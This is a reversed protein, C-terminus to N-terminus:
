AIARPGLVFSSTQGRFRARATLPTRADVGAAAILASPILLKGERNKELVGAPLGTVIASAPEIGDAVGEFRLRSMGEPLHVTRTESVLAFGELAGFDISGSGRYPARYVTVSLDSPPEALTDAAMVPAFAPLLLLWMPYRCRLTWARM